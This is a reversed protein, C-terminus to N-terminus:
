NSESEIDRPDLTYIISGVTKVTPESLPSDFRERYWKTAKQIAQKIPLTTYATFEGFSIETIDSFCFRVDIRELDFILNCYLCKVTSVIYINPLQSDYDIKRDLATFIDILAIKDARNCNPCQIFGEPLLELEESM